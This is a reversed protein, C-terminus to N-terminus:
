PAYTPAPIVFKTQAALAVLARTVADPLSVIAPLVAIPRAPRLTELHIACKSSAVWLDVSRDWREVERACTWAPGHDPASIVIAPARPLARVLREPRAIATFLGFRAADRGFGLALEHTRSSVPVVHDAEAGLAAQPARLDGAPVVRGSGWPADADVALLALAARRPSTQVPGDVVIVDARAAALDVAAQRRPAVVVPVASGLARACALAEDGVDALADSARVIRARGPRAGYAHGVLAVRAGLRALEAACSLAVRTKGSGGLTAGGVAVVAVHAPVVLPRALARAAVFGVARSAARALPGSFAGAELRRAVAPRLVRRRYV